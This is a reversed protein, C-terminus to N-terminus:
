GYYTILKLINQTHIIALITVLSEAFTQFFSGRFQVFGLCINQIESLMDTMIILTRLLM